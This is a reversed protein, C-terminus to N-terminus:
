QLLSTVEAINSVGYITSIEIRSKRNLLALIAGAGAANGASTVSKLNCDPIMGLVMAHKTSIHAGFAGALIIKDIKDIKMEDMLLRSGAFLAAKALQIARVDGNTIKITTEDSIMSKYIIYSNTRGESICRGGQGGSTLTPHDNKKQM